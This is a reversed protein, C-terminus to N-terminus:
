PHSTKTTVVDLGQTPVLEAFRSGFCVHLHRRSDPSQPDAAEERHQSEQKDESSIKSPSPEPAFIHSPIAFATSPYLSHLSYRM